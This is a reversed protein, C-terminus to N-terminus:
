EVMEWMWCKVVAERIPYKPLILPQKGFELVSMPIHLKLAM